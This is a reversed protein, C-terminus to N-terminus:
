QSGSLLRLLSLSDKYVIDNIRWGSATKVVKFALKVQEHNSPYLFQVHVIGSNDAPSIKLEAAGPDQSAFIPDFDLRCIEHTKQTCARDKLILSVLEASFYRGLVERPQEILSAGEWHMDMVAEWAFDRYLWAVVDEPKNYKRAEGAFATFSFCM